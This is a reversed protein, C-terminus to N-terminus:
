PHVRMARMSTISARFGRPDTPDPKASRYVTESFSVRRWALGSSDHALSGTKKGGPDVWPKEFQVGDTVIMLDVEPRNFGADNSLALLTDDDAFALYDWDSDHRATGNARSGYLWVETITSYKSVLQHVYAMTVAPSVGCNARWQTVADLCTPLNAQRYEVSMTSVPSDYTKSRFSHSHRARLSQERSRREDEAESRVVTAARRCEVQGSALHDFEAQKDKPLEFRTSILRLRTTPVFNFNQSTGPSLHCEPEREM